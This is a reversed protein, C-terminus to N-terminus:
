IYRSYTSGTLSYTFFLCQCGPYRNDSIFIHVEIQYIQVEIVTVWEYITLLLARSPHSGLLSNPKACQWTWIYRHSLEPLFNAVFAM